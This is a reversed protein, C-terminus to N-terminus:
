DWQCVFGARRNPHQTSPTDNWRGASNKWQPIFNDGIMLQPYHEIGKWNNPQEAYWNMYSMAKGTVWVWEGENNEDTAGLWVCERNLKAALKTVFDNEAATEIVVLRGGLEVCKNRAIHWTLDESYVKYHKGKFVVADIPPTTKVEPVIEKPKIGFAETQKKLRGYIEGYLVRGAPSREASAFQLRYKLMFGVLEAVSTADHEQTDILIERAYDVTEADLFRTANRLDTVFKTAEDRFGRDKPLESQARAQLSNLSRDLDTLAELKLQDNLLQARLAAYANEYAARENRLAQQKMVTPWKEGTTDLLSLAIVGRSLAKSAKSSDSVPTFRFILDKVSMEKPLPVVHASWMDSSIDPDTLDYLLANLAQGNQVDSPTPDVRLQHERVALRRQVEELRLKKGADERARL